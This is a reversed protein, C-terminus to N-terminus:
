YIDDTYGDGSRFSQYIGFTVNLIICINCFLMERWHSKCGIVTSGWMHYQCELVADEVFM